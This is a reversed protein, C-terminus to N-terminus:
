SWILCKKNQIIRREGKLGIVHIDCMINTLIFVYKKGFEALLFIQIASM